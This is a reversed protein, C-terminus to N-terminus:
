RLGEEKPRPVLGATTSLAGGVGLTVRPPGPVQGPGGEPKPQNCSPASGVVLYLSFTNVRRSGTRSTDFVWTLTDGVSLAREFRAYTSASGDVNFRDNSDYSVVLVSGSAGTFVTNTETDLELVAGTTAAGDANFDGAWEVTKTVAAPNLAATQPPTASTDTGDGDHDWDAIDATLTESAANASSYAWGYTYSGDRGVTFERPSASPLSSDAQDAPSAVSSTLTVKVGTIPDGYLDTVTVTARNSAGRADAAVYEAAPEITITIDAAASVRPGTSFM